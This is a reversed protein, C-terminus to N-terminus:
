STLERLDKRYNLSGTSKCPNICFHISLCILIVVLLLLEAENKNTTINDASFICSTEKTGTSSKACPIVLPMHTERLTHFSWLLQLHIFLCTSCLHPLSKIHRSHLVLKYAPFGVPLPNPLCYIQMKHILVSAFLFGDSYVFRRFTLSFFM